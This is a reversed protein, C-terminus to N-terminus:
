LELLRKGAHLTSYLHKLLEAKQVFAAKCIQCRYRRWEKRHSGLHLQLDLKSSFARNNCLPCNHLKIGQHVTRFHHNLGAKKRFQKDCKSCSHQKINTHTLLHADLHHKVKFIGKCHLCNYMRTDDM